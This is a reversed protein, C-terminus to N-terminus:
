RKPVLERTLPTDIPPARPARDREMIKPLFPLFSLLFFFRCPLHLLGGGGGGGRLEFDPDAVPFHTSNRVEMRARM